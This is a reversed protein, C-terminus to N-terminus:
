PRGAHRHLNEFYLRLWLAHGMEESWYFRSVSATLDNHYLLPPSEPSLTRLLDVVEASSPIPGGAGMLRALMAAADVWVQQGPVPTTFRSPPLNVACGAKRADAQRLVPLMPARQYYVWLSDDAVARTLAGCLARAAPPDVRALLMLVHMQIVGDAPDPDTGPDICQYRDRPALWTRYLGDARRYQKMSALALPLQEPHAGPAIRWVLATDDADPTIACGLTGITPGDPRGHYRVLGGEEIQNALFRRARGITNGLRAEAAVPELVDIMMSTLFTNMEQRVRDFRAAPTYSTLWYGPAQQRSAILEVAERARRALDAGPEGTQPRVPPRNAASSDGAPAAAPIVFHRDTLFFMGGAAYARVFVALVHRGAALERAPVTLRWGTPCATGVTKNVDPRVFFDSTSAVVQSDLMVQVDAPTRDAALAWGEVALEKGSARGLSLGERTTAIDLSGRVETALDFAAPSHRLEAVFPTNRPDWAAGLAHPGQQVAYIAADSAGTYWFAGIAEIAIAAACASVFALRGLRRLSGFVPALMWVLLPLMDTLWRPGWATGQRWDAPAYVALQLAVAILIAITLRRTNRDRLAAPVSWPLFILFPSFVFLGRAPSFLLGALGTLPNHEFFSAKAVLGYGGAVHGALGLNYALLLGAPVLAAGVLLPAKRRAWWLGYLGLAAALIADPPRNCAILGGLLGATLAGATTCPGTIVLMMAVVLLEGLGHQWLAQSSIMWTTTGCAYALTLLLSVRRGTRRRLLLYFLAASIAALLSASLKEMVRAVRDLRWPEWGLRDLYAVAPLYLPAILVPTVVPYLSLIHGSRARVLWYAKVRWEDPPHPQGPAAGIIRGQAALPALPDVLVTHHHWIGFPILRAPYSDGAGILRLNANFVLFCLLLVVLSIWLDGRSRAVTSPSPAGGEQGAAGSGSDHTPPAEPSM